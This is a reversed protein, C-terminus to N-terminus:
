EDEKEMAKDIMADLRKNRPLWHYDPAIPGHQIVLEDNDGHRLWHYRKADKELEAVKAELEAVKDPQPTTYLLHEVNPTLKFVERGVPMCTYEENENFNIMAVPECVQAKDILDRLEDALRAAWGDTGEFKNIAAEIESVKLTIYKDTM